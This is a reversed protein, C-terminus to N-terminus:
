SQEGFKKKLLDYLYRDIHCMEYRRKDVGLFKERHNFNM